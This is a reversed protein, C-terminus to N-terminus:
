LRDWLLPRVIEQGRWLVVQQGTIIKTENIVTAGNSFVIPVGDTLKYSQGTARFPTIAGPRFTLAISSDARKARALRLKAVRDLEDQDRVWQMYISEQRRGGSNNFDTADLQNSILVLDRPSTGVAYIDNRHDVPMRQRRYGLIGPDGYHWALNTLDTGRNKWLNFVGAPTIEFVVRNTTDSIAAAVLEQMLFLVRKYYVTYRDMTFPTAGGSTTVLTEVTGKTMWKVRADGIGALARDWQAEIIDSIEQGLYETEWATQIEYLGALYSYGYIIIDDPAEDTEGVWGSWVNDGDRYIRMHCGKDVLTTLLPAKPDKQSITFFAEGVDNVYESYGLNKVNEFDAILNGIGWTVNDAFDYILVRYVPTAM